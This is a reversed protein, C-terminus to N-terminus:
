KKNIAIRNSWKGNVMRWCILWQVSYLHTPIYNYIIRIREVEETPNWTARRPGLVKFIGYSNNEFNCEKIIMVKLSGSFFLIDSSICSNLTSIPHNNRCHEFMNWTQATIRKSEETGTFIFTNDVSYM